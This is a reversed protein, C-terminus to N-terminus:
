GMYYGHIVGRPHTEYTNTNIDGAIYHGFKRSVGIEIPAEKFNYSFAWGIPTFCTLKTSNVGNNNFQEMNTEYSVFPSEIDTEAQNMAGIKTEWSTSHYMEVPSPEDVERYTFQYDYIYVPKDYPNQWAFYVPSSTYDTRTLYENGSESLKGNFIVKKTGLTVGIDVLDSKITSLEIEVDNLSTSISNLLQNTRSSNM